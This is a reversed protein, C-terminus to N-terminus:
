PLTKQRGSGFGSETLSDLTLGGSGPGFRFLQAERRETLWRECALHFESYIGDAEHEKEETETIEEPTRSATQGKILLATLEAWARRLSEALKPIEHNSGLRLKLRTSSALLESLQDLTGGHESTVEGLESMLREKAMKKAEPSAEEDVLQAELAPRSVEWLPISISFDAVAKSGEYVIEVAEDIADRIHQMSRVILDHALQERQRKNATAAAIRAAMVAAGAILMPAILTLLIELAQSNGGVVQVEVPENFVAALV